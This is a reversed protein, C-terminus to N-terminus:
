IEFSWDKLDDQATRKPCTACWDGKLQEYGWRVAELTSSWVQTGEVFIHERGILAVLGCNSMVEMFPQRVGCIAVKQGRQQVRGLFGALLHM